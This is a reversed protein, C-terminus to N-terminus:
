IRHDPLRGNSYHGQRWGHLAVEGIGKDEGGGHDQYGLCFACLARETLRSSLSEGFGHHAVENHLLLHARLMTRAKAQQLDAM